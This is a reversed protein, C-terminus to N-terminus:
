ANGERLFNKPFSQRGGVGPCLNIGGGGLQVVLGGIVHLPLAAEGVGDGFNSQDVM